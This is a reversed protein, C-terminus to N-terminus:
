VLHRFFHSFVIKLSATVPVALLMGWFGFLSGGALLVFIVLLPNLGVREGIIRPSIINGEVQQIIVFAILTYLALRPSQILAMAVAPGGALFPGFYPFLEAIAALLGLLLFFKIGLAWTVMGVLLGEILCVLLQGRLFAQWALDIEGGLKLIERRIRVPWLTLFGERLKEWDRIIYFGLLPSFIIDIVTYASHIIGNATRKIFAQMMNELHVKLPKLDIFTLAEKAGRNDWYDQVHHWYGPICKMLEGIQHWFVPIMLFFLLYLGLGLLVYFVIIGWTRPIGRNQLWKVPRYILYALLGGLVFTVLVERVRYLFYATVAIVVLLFILRWISRHM